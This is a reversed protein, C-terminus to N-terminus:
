ATRRFFFFGIVGVIVLLILEVMGPNWALVGTSLLVELAIAPVKGIMTGISFPLLGMKIVAGFLNVAGSPLVPICRALFIFYIQQGGSWRQLRAFWRDLKKAVQHEQFHLYGKRYIWFAVVAGIVEAIWSIFGGYWPGWIAVNALTVVVSPLFGIINIGINVILSVLMAWEGMSTFFSIWQSTM